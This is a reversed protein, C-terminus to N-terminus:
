SGKYTFIYYSVTIYIIWFYVVGRANPVRKTFEIIIIIIIDYLSYTCLIDYLIIYVRGKAHIHM